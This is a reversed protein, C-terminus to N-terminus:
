IKINREIVPENIDITQLEYNLPCAGGRLAPLPPPLSPMMSIICKLRKALRIICGTNFKNMGSASADLIESIIKNKSNSREFTM